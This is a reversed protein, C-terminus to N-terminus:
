LSISQSIYSWIKLEPLLINPLNKAVIAYLFVSLEVMGIDVPAISGIIAISSYFFVRVLKIYFVLLSIDM